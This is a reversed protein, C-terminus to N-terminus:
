EKLGEQRCSANTPQGITKGADVVSTAAAMPANQPRHKRAATQYARRRGSARVGSIGRTLRNAPSLSLASADGTSRGRTVPHQHSEPAGAM